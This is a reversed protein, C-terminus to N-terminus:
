SSPCSTCPLASAPLAPARAARFTRASACERGQLCAARARACPPRARPSLARSRSTSRASRRGTSSRACSRGCARTSGTTRASSRRTTCRWSTTSASTAQARAGLPARVSRLAGRHARAQARAFHTLYAFSLAARSSLAPARRLRLWVRQAPPPCPPSAPVAPRAACHCHTRARACLPAGVRPRRVQRHAGAGVAAAAGSATRLCIAPDPLPVRPRALISRLGGTGGATSAAYGKWGGASEDSTRAGVRLGFECYARVRRRIALLRCAIEAPAM